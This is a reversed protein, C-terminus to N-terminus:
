HEAGPAVPFLPAARPAVSTHAAVETPGESGSLIRRPMRTLGRRDERLNVCAEEARNLREAM